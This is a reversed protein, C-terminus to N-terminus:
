EVGRRRRCRSAAGIDGSQQEDIPAHKWDPSTCEASSQQCWQRKLRECASGARFATALVGRLLPALLIVLGRERVNLTAEFECLGGSGRVGRGAGERHDLSALAAM